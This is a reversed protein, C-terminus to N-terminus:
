SIREHFKGAVPGLAGFGALGIPNLILVLAIIIFATQYPHEKVHNIIAYFVARYFEPDKVTSIVKDVVQQLIPLLESASTALEGMLKNFNGPLRSIFTSLNNCGRFMASISPYMNLIASLMASSQDHRLSRVIAAGPGVMGIGRLIDFASDAAEPGGPRSKWAEAISEIGM